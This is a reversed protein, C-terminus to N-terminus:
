RAANFRTHTVDLRESVPFNLRSVARRVCANVAPSPPASVVTIGVTRGNKVAACVEFVTREPISCGALYSGNQLIGAYAERTIDAPGRRAGLELEENNHAIAAECSGVAVAGSTAPERAPAPADSPPAPEGHPEFLGNLRPGGSARERERVPASDSFDPFDALAPSSPLTTVPTEEQERVRPEETRRPASDARPPPETPEALAPTPAPAVAVDPETQALPETAVSPESTPTAAPAPPAVDPAPAEEAPRVAQPPERESAFAEDLPHPGLQTFGYTLLGMALWYGAAPLALPPLRWRPRAASRPGEPPLRLRPRIALRVAVVARM